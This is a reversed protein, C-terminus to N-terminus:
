ARLCPHPNALVYLKFRQIVAMAYEDGVDAEALAHKIQAYTRFDYWGAARAAEVFSPWELVRSSSLCSQITMSLPVGREDKLKFAISGPFMDSM